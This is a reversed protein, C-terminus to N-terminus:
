ERSAERSNPGAAPRISPKHADINSATEYEPHDPARFNPDRSTIAANSFAPALHLGTGSAGNRVLAGNAASFLRPSNRLETSEYKAM